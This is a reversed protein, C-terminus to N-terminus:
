LRGVRADRRARGGRLAGTPLLPWALDAGRSPAARPAPAAPPAPATPRRLPPPRHSKRVSLEKDALLSTLLPQSLHLFGEHKAAAEFHRTLVTVCHQVVPFCHVEDAAALMACCQSVDDAHGKLYECCLDALDLVEYMDALRYLPLAAAPELAVPQGYVFQLLEALRAPSVEHLTLENNASSAERLEGLLMSHFPRSSAALVARHAHLVVAESGAKEYVVLRCDMLAKQDFMAALTRTAASAERLVSAENNNNTTTTSSASADSRARKAPPQASM